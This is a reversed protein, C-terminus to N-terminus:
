QARGRSTKRDFIFRIIPLLAFGSRSTTMLFHLLINAFIRLLLRVPFNSLLRRHINNFVVIIM